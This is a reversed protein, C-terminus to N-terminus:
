GAYTIVIAGAASGSASVAYIVDGSNVFINLRAANNLTSGITAGSSNYLVRGIDTIAFPTGTVATVATGGLAVSITGTVSTYTSKIKAITGIYGEFSSNSINFVGSTVTVLANATLIINTASNVFSITGIFTGSVDYLLRGTDNSAFATNVGTVTTSSTSTTITGTGLIYSLGANGYLDNGYLEQGVKYNSEGLVNINASTDITVYPIIAIPNDSEIAFATGGGITILQSAFATIDGLYFWMANVYAYAVYSGSMTGYPCYNVALATTTGSAYSATTQIGFNAKAFLFHCGFL